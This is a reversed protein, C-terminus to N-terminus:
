FGELIGERFATIDYEAAAISSHTEILSFSITTVIPQSIGFAGSIYDVADDLPISISTMVVPVNYFLDGYGNLKLKSPAADEDISTTLWSELLRINLFNEEAEEETRSVFTASISYKKNNTVRYLLEMGQGPLGRNEYIADKSITIKPRVKFIVEGGSGRLKIKESM